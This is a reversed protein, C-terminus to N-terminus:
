LGVGHGAPTQSEREAGRGDDGGNLLQLALGSRVRGRDHLFGRDRRESTWLLAHFVHARLVDLQAIVHHLSQAGDGLHFARQWFTREVGIGVYRFEESSASYVRCGLDGALEQALRVYSRNRSFAEAGLLVNADGVSSRHGFEVTTQLAYVLEEATQLM